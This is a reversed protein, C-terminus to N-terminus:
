PDYLAPHTLYSPAPPRGGRPNRAPTALRRLWGHDELLDLAPELDPITPFDARNVKSFLETRKFGPTPNAHLWELVTRAGKHATNVGMADFVVLAHTKFYDGLRMAAHLTDAHIPRSWGDNPHTALHLLGAIRATTGDHKGAWKSIHALAGGRDLADETHQQYDAMLTNAEPTLPLVAPDTWDALALTLAAITREYTEAVPEPIPTTLIKRRGVLSEPLSYLFRALLGRGDFGKNRAIDELVAPQLALGMTLAPHEIYERRTQRNVKLLDGAHGKLFVEMNPTGGSYRGAITDFIGGEASLVSLRGGQEALLSAVAEPTADDAVLQPRPPVTASEAAQALAVAEATVNAREAADTCGAAKAAAKEAAARAVRATTEAEAITHGAADALIREATLLPHTMLSFVASKRNAPPLAVAIYLNLPERWRGRINVVARGGAATALVALAICGALDAPTQTEEAVADVMAALWHPLADTPFPPLTRTGGLPIPDEWPEPQPEHDLAALREEAGLRALIEAASTEPRPDHNTM